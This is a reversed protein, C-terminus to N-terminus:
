VLSRVVKEPKVKSNSSAPRYDDDDNLRGSETLRILLRRRWQQQQQFRLRMRRARLFSLSAM